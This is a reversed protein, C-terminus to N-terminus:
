CVIMCQRRDEKLVKGHETREVSTVRKDDVKKKDTALMEAKEVRVREMDRESREYKRALKWFLANGIKFPPVSLSAKWWHLCDSLDNTTSYAELVLTGYNETTKDLIKVFDNFHPVIGFFFRHLKQRNTHIAERLTVVIDIQTRLSPELDVLYQLSLILTIKLHRGNMMINRMCTTRFIGKDYACDDLVLLVNRAKGKRAMTAQTEVLSEIRSASYGPYLACEPLHRRFMALSDETPSMAIAM